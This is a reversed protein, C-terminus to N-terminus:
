NRKNKSHVALKLGIFLCFIATQPHMKLLKHFKILFFFFLMKIQKLSIPKRCDIKIPFGFKVDFIRKLLLLLLTRVNKLVIEHTLKVYFNVNLMLNREQNSISKM